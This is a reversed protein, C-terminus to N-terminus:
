LHSQFRRLKEFFHDTKCIGTKLFGCIFVGKAREISSLKQKVKKEGLFNKAESTNSCDLAQPRQGRSGWQNQELKHKQSIMTMESRRGEYIWYLENSDEKRALYNATIDKPKSSLRKM